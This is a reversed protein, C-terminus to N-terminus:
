AAVSVDAPVVEAFKATDIFQRFRALKGDSLDWVHVAPVDLAKGTAKGTGTYRLVVAVSRGSAIFEERVLALGDVDENIPGIVNQAVAEPGRYVGGYPMGDAEFWEIDDALAGFAAPTDGRDAAEYFGRVLEVNRESM